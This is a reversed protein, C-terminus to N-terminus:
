SVEIGRLYYNNSRKPEHFGQELQFKFKVVSGNGMLVSQEYFPTFNKIKLCKKGFGPIILNITKM